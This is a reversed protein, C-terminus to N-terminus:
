YFKEKGNKLERINFIDGITEGLEAIGETGPMSMFIADHGFTDKYNGEDLFYWPYTFMDPDVYNTFNFGWDLSYWPYPFVHLEDSSLSEGAHM